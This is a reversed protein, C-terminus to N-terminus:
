ISKQIEKLRHAVSRASFKQSVHPNLLEFVTRRLESPVNRRSIKSISDENVIPLEGELLLYIIAGLAYLDVTFATEGFMQKNWERSDTALTTWSKPDPRAILCAGEFDLPRLDGKETVILNSPKCDRWLWGARHIQALIEALQVAFKLTRSIGVRRKRRKLFLHLNAGEIFETALYFNGEGEFSYYVEPVSVKAARLIKLVKEEHRTRWFGDRGDWEVEGHRRGEKLLCSRPADDRVDWGQYVGGKGRQALARCVRFNKELPSDDEAAFKTEAPPFPNSVWSPHPKAGDRVDPILNGKQNRIALRVGGESDKLENIKFAGYRYFVSSGPKFRTEFPIAPSAFQETLRHLREAFHVAQADTQPYVTIFKGVQSYEYYIGANLKRLEQLSVPAKYYVNESKLFPAITELVTNATLITASVHLKWGQELDKPQRLRSYRWISQEALIPLYRRCLQQWRNNSLEASDFFFEPQRNVSSLM